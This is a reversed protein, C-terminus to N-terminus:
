AILVVILNMELSVFYDFYIIFYRTSHIVRCIFSSRRNCFHLFIWFKWENRQVNYASKNWHIPKDERAPVVFANPNESTSENMVPFDGFRFVQVSEHFDNSTILLGVILRYNEKKINMESTKEVRFVVHNEDIANPRQM